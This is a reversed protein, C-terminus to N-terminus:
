LLLTMLCMCGHVEWVDCTLCAIKGETMPTGANSTSVIELKGEKNKVLWGWGSGFTTLATKSFQEKFAAFSGFDKDIQERLAGTPEGGGQIRFSRFLIHFFFVLSTMLRAVRRACRMARCHMM